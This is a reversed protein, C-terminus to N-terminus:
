KSARILIFGIIVLLSGRWFTDWALDFPGFRWYAAGYGNGLYVGGLTCVLGGVYKALKTIQQMDIGSEHIGLLREDEYKPPGNIDQQARSRFDSQM